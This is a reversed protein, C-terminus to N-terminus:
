GTLTQRLDAIISLARHAHLARSLGTPPESSGGAIIRPPNANPPTHRGVAETLVGVVNGSQLDVVPGGSTGGSIGADLQFLAGPNGPSDELRAAASVIGQSFAPFLAAGGAQDLSLEFGMPFGCVVVEDGDECAHDSLALPTLHHDPPPRFHIAALDDVSSAQIASVVGLLFSLHLGGSKPSPILAAILVKPQPPLPSGKGKLAAHAAAAELWPQIVRKTTLATGTKDIVFASGLVSLLAPGIALQDSASVVAVVSQRIRAFLERRSSRPGTTASSTAAAAAAPKKKKSMAQFM